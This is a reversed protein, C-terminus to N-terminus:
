VLIAEADVLDNADMGHVGQLLVVDVFDEGIQVSVMTGERSEETRVVDGVAEFGVGDLLRSFDLVDGASFDTIVDVGKSEGTNQDVIDKAFWLYKDSGQGGTFVDSGGLGRFLDNGDGGDFINDRKDGKFSDDFGTGIVQEISKVSDTGSGTVVHAHLDVNVGNVAGEFSLTDFGSGGDYSDDGLGDVIRDDGSGGSVTDNGSGGILGDDGSNGELVDDGAGGSVLDNGSNGVLEDNGAGGAVEDDGSGGKVVDDGAGGLVTDNGSNGWVQDNGDGGNVVDDGRMGFLEDNGQGGEILDNDTNAVEGSAVRPLLAANTVGIDISFVSDDFDKDGGNWLDEFGIRVTGAQTDVEGTVHDYNDGNLGGEPGNLSHFVSTGYQSRIVTEDGDPAVHVLQVQEGSNVNGPNGDSDRLEYRGEEEALVSRYGGSRSFGNPVVFFGINDGANLQVDVSSEGAVLRGGSGQLSANGFLVQVDYISGDDAIKYMGLVNRYGASEGQFTVRGTYDQGIVFRDMNVDGGLSSAGFIVDDGGNGAIEDNGGGGLIVDNGEGGHLAEAASTGAIFQHEVPSNVVDVPASLGGAADAAGSVQANTGGAPTNGGGIPGNVGGIFQIPGNQEIAM